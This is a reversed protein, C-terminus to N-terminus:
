AALVVDVAVGFLDALRQCGTSSCHTGDDYGSGSPDSLLPDGALDVVLTYAALSDALVLANGAQRKAENGSASTITTSPTTTSGIVHTGGAARWAAAYSVQDAYCEAATRGNQYDGTGGVMLLMSKTAAKATRNLDAVLPLLAVWGFGPRTVTYRALTPHADFLRTAASGGGGSPIAGWISQGALTGGAGARRFHGTAVM